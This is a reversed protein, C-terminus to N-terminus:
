TLPGVELADYDEFALMVATYDAYTALVADYDWGLTGLLDGTPRKVEVYNVRLSWRTAAGETNLPDIRTGTPLHYLDMGEHDAQRLLMAMRREYIRELARAEAHTACWYEVFGQRTNLAGITALPDPRGIIEHVTTQADRAADYAYVMRLPTALNQYFVPGLWPQSTGVSASATYTAENTTVEYSVEGVLAAEQDIINVPAGTASPLLGSFTRVQATGNADTRYVSIVHETSSTTTRVWMAGIDPRPVLSVNTEADVWERLSRSLNADGLWEYQYGPATDDTTNGDFFPLATGGENIMVNTIEFWSGAPLPADLDWMILSLTLCRDGTHSAPVAGTFEVHTWDTPPPFFLTTSAFGQLGGTVPSTGLVLDVGTSLPAASSVCRVDASVTFTRGALSERATNFLDLTFFDTESSSTCRVATTAGNVSVATQSASGGGGDWKSTLTRPSECYNIDAM